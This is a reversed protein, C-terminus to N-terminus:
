IQTHHTSSTPRRVQRLYLFDGSLDYASLLGGLFRITFEFFSVDMARDFTLTAVFARARVLQEDLKMIMLTDLSDLITAGFGGWNNISSNSSPLLEDAGWAFAEYATWAHLFESKVDDRRRSEVLIPNEPAGPFVLPAVPLPPEDLPTPVPRWCRWAAALFVVVLTVLLERTM